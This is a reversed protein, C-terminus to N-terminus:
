FLAEALTAGSPDLITLVRHRDDPLPPPTALYIELRYLGRLSEGGLLPLGPGLSRGETTVPYAIIKASDPTFEARPTWPTHLDDLRLQAFHGDLALHTQWLHPHTAAPDNSRFREVLGFPLAASDHPVFFEYGSFTFLLRYHQQLFDALPGAVPLNESALFDTLYRHSILATRPTIQLAQRIADQDDASLLWFWHTAFRSTPPPVGSWLHHSLMGPRTFLLDAHLAANLSVLRLALRTADGPRLTEAGPLGLPRAELQYRWGTTALRTFVQGLALAAIAATVGPWGFRLLPPLRPFTAPPPALLGAVLLPALAFVGWALQSGAVPYAHLVQPLALFALWVGLPPRADPRLPVLFLPLCVVALATFERLGAVRLLSPLFVLLGAFAALRAVYVGHATRPALQGLRCLDRGAFFALTASGIAVPWIWWPWRAPVTFHAPHRLPALFVAEFLAAPSTGRLYTALLVVFSALTFGLAAAWWASPTIFRREPPVPTIWLLSATAVTFLSAFQLVWATHLNTSMLAWPTALLGASALFQAPRLFAAPWATHRLAVAATGALLLLGVNIKTFFLLAAVVGLGAALARPRPSPTLHFAAFLLAAAVMATILSGPHSPESINQWLLLFTLFAALFPAAPQASLRRALWAMAAVCFLWHAATLLRGVTHTIDGFFLAALRHYLFPVPGYQSFLGDYLPTGANFHHYGLLLYGEDDYLMLTTNLLLLAVALCALGSLVALLRRLVPSSM